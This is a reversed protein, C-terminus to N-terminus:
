RRLLMLVLWESLLPFQLHEGPFTGGLLIIRANCFYQSYHKYQTKINHLSQVFFYVGDKLENTGKITYATTVEM